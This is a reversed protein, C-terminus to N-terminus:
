KIWEWKIYISVDNQNRMMLYILDISNLLTDVAIALKYMFILMMFSYKSM